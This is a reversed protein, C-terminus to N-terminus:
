WCIPIGTNGAGVVVALSFIKGPLSQQMGTLMRQSYGEIRSHMKQEAAALELLRDERFNLRNKLFRVLGFAVCCLGAEILFPSIM